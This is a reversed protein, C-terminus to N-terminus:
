RNKRIDRKVATGEYVEFYPVPPPPTPPRVAALVAQHAAADADAAAAEAQESLAYAEADDIEGDEEAVEVANSLDAAAAGPTDDLVARLADVRDERQSRASASTKERREDRRGEATKGMNKYAGMRNIHERQKAIKAARVPDSTVDAMVVDTMAAAHHADAAAEFAEAAALMETDTARSMM